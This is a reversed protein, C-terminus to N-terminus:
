GDDGTVKSNKSADRSMSVGEDIAVPEDKKAIEEVAAEGGQDSMLKDLDKVEENITDHEQRICRPIIMGDRRELQIMNQNEYWWKDDDMEVEIEENVLVFTRGDKTLGTEILREEGNRNRFFKYPQKALHINQPVDCWMVRKIYGDSTLIYPLDRDRLEYNPKYPKGQFMITETEVNIDRGIFYCPSVKLDFDFPPEESPLDRAVSPRVRPFRKNSYWFGEGTFFFVEVSSTPVFYYCETDMVQILKGKPYTEWDFEPYRSRFRVPIELRGDGDAETPARETTTTM